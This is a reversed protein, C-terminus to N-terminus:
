IVHVFLDMNQKTVIVIMDMVLNVRAYKRMVHVEVRMVVVPGIIQAMAHAVLLMGMIQIIVHIAVRYDMHQAIVNVVLLMGM